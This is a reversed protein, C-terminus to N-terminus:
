QGCSKRLIKQQNGINVLWARVDDPWPRKSSLWGTVQESAYVPKVPCVSEIQNQCGQLYMMM